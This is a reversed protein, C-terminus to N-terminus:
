DKTPSGFTTRIADLNIGLSTELPGIFLYVVTLILNPILFIWLYATTLGAFLSADMGTALEGMYTIMSFDLFLSMNFAIFKGWAGYTGKNLFDAKQMALYSLAAFGIVTATEVTMKLYDPPQGERAM